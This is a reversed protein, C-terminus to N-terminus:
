GPYWGVASGDNGYFQNRNGWFNDSTDNYPNYTTGFPAPSPSQSQYNPFYSPGVREATAATQARASGMPNSSQQAGGGFLSGLGSGGGGGGGMMGGGMVSGYISAAQQAWDFLQNINATTARGAAGLKNAWNSHPQYGQLNGMNLANQGIGLGQLDRLGALRAMYPSMARAELAEFGARRQPLISMLTQDRGMIANQLQPFAGGLAALSARNADLGARTAIGGRLLTEYSSASGPNIGRALNSINQSNSLYNLVNDPVQQTKDFLYDGLQRYEDFPTTSRQLIGRLAADSELTAARLLPNNQRQKNRFQALVNNLGGRAINIDSTLGLELNRLADDRYIPKPPKDSGFIAELEGFLPGSAQTESAQAM